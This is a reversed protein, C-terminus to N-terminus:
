EGHCCQPGPCAVSLGRLPTVWELWRPATRGDESVTTPLAEWPGELSEAILVVVIYDDANGSVQETLPLYVTMPSRLPGSPGVEFFSSVPQMIDSLPLVGDEAVAAHLNDPLNSGEVRVGAGISIPRTNRLVVVALAATVALVVAIAVLWAKRSLPVQERLKM